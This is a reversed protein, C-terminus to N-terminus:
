YLKKRQFGSMDSTAGSDAPIKGSAPALLETKTEM